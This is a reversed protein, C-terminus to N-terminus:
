PTQRGGEAATAAELEGKGEGGGSTAGCGAGAASLSSSMDPLPPPPPPVRPVASSFSSWDDCSAITSASASPPLAFAASSLAAAPVAVEILEPEDIAYRGAM